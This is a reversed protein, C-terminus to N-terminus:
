TGLAFLQVRVVVEVGAPRAISLATYPVNQSLLILFGDVAIASAVGAASTLKVTIPSQAAPVGNPNASTPPLGINPKVKIVILNADSLSGFPVAVDGDTSLTYEEDKKGSCAMQELVDALISPNLSTDLYPVPPDYQLRGSLKVIGSITM